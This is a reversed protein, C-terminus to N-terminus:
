NLDDRIIKGLEEEDRGCDVAFSGPGRTGAVGARVPRGFTVM